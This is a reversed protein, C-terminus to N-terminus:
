SEHAHWGAVREKIVQAPTGVVTTNPPVNKVVTSGAGIVSWEGIIKKEIINAGTGVYAGENLHVNGSIHVGPALTVFDNLVADHGVTCDHNLHVHNGLMIQNTLICGATVVVGSGLTIWRSSIVSPHILTAFRVKFQKARQIMQYRIEPAGVGCVTMMESHQELWTFDGLIPKDNIIEGARGYQDDVIFGLM